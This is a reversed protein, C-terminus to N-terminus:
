NIRSLHDIDDGLKKLFRLARTARNHLNVFDKRKEEPLSPNGKICDRLKNKAAVLFVYSDALDPIITDLPYYKGQSIRENHEDEFSVEPQNTQQYPFSLNDKRSYPAFDKRPASSQASYTGRPSWTPLSEEIIKEINVM